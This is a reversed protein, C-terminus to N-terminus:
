WRSPSAISGPANNGCKLRVYAAARCSPVECDDTQAKEASRASFACVLPSLTGSQRLCFFASQTLGAMEPFYCIM